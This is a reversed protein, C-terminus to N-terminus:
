LEGLRGSQLGGRTLGCMDTLLQLGAKAAAASLDDDWCAFVPVADIRERLLLASALHIADYARLRYREAVNGADKILAGGLSLVFMEAWDAHLSELVRRHGRASLDGERHRRALAARMEVYAIESTAMLEAERAARRVIPAGAEDIYLKVLASTDLYVIM